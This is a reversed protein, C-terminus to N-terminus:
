CGQWFAKDIKNIAEESLWSESKNICEKRQKRNLQNKRM